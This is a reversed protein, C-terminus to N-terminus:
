ILVLHFDYLGKVNSTLQQKSLVTVIVKCKEQFYPYDLLCMTKYDDGQGMVINKFTKMHEHTM